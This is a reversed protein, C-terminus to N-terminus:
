ETEEQTDVAEAQEMADRYQVYATLRQALEEGEFWFDKGDLMAQIEEASLFGSYTNVVFRSIMKDMHKVQVAVEPAKGYAGYTATHLMFSSNDDIEWEDCALAIATASSACMFGIYAVTHAECESIAKCLLLATAVSGGDSNIIIRVVDQPGAAALVQFEEEFDDAETISRSLRITYLRAVEERVLIRNPAQTM